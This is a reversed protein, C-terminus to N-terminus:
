MIVAGTRIYINDQETMYDAVIIQKNHLKLIQHLNGRDKKKKKIRFTREVCDIVNYISDRLRMKGLFCAEQFGPDKAGVQGPGAAHCDDQSKGEGIGQPNSEYGPNFERKGRQM